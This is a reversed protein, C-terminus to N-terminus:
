KDDIHIDAPTANIYGILKENHLLAVNLEPIWGPVKLCWKLFKISYDFRLTSYIDEVYNDRLLEYM